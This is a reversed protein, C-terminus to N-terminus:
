IWLLELIQYALKSNMATNYHFHTNDILRITQRQVVFASGSLLVFM